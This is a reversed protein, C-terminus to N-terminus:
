NGRPPFKVHNFWFDGIKKITEIFKLMDVPKTIYCNAHHAYADMIDDRSNSTTLVVIPILKLSKDAKVEKLVERGDKKPMNLDLLILNPRSKDTFNKKKHLYDIAEIGDRVVNLKIKFGVEKFAEKTLRVDGQNDEVLLIEIPKIKEVKCL